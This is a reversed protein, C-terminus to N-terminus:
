SNIRNIEEKTPINGGFGSGIGSGYGGGLSGGGIGGGFGGHGGLIVGRKQKTAGEEAHVAAVALM